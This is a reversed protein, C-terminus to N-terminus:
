FSFLVLVLVVVFVFINAYFYFRFSFSLHYAISLVLFWQDAVPKYVRHHEVRQRQVGTSQGAADEQVRKQQANDLNGGVQRRGDQQFADSASQCYSDARHEAAQGAEAHNREHKDGTRSRLM